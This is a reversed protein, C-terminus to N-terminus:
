FISDHLGSIKGSALDALPIRESTKMGDGILLCVAANLRALGTTVADIDLAYEDGITALDIATFNFPCTITIRDTFEKSKLLLGHTRCILPRAEYIACCNDRLFPCSGDEQNGEDKKQPTLPTQELRRAIIMAELYNVSPLECCISCGAHCAFASPFQTATKKWFADCYFCLENYNKIIEEIKNM